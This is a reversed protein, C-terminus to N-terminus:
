SSVAAEAVTSWSPWSAANPAKNAENDSQKARESLLSVNARIVLPM